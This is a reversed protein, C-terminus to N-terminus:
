SVISDLFIVCTATLGESTITGLTEFPTYKPNTSSKRVRIRVPVDTGPFDYTTTVVGSGNTTDNLIQTNDSSKQIYVRAGSVPTGSSDLVTVTLTTADEISFDVAFFYSHWGSQSVATAGTATEAGAVIGIQEGGRISVPSRKGKINSDRMSRSTWASTGATWNGLYANGGGVSLIEPFFTMYVPGLFDKTNLYSYGRPTGASGEAIYSQPITGAPLVPSNTFIECVSSSITPANTDLKVATLKKDADSYSVPDIAGLPVLQFYPTDYTGVEVLKIYNIEITEGSGSNNDISFVSETESTVNIFTQFVWTRNPSGVVNLSLEVSLPMNAHLPYPVLAIKEGQKVKIRQLSSNSTGVWAMGAGGTREITGMGTAQPWFQGSVSYQKMYGVNMYQSLQQVDGTASDTSQFGPAEITLATTTNSTIRYRGANGGSAINLTHGLYQFQNTGWGPASGPTFTVDNVAITADTHSGSVTVWSPTYATRTKIQVTSPFASANTDLKSGTWTDGAALATVPILRFMTPVTTPFTGATQSAGIYTQDHIQVSNIDIKKGSGTKNVLALIATGSMGQWKTEGAVRYHYKAM